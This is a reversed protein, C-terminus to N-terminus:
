GCKGRGRPRVSSYFFLQSRAFRFEERVTGRGRFGAAEGGAIGTSVKLRLDSQDAVLFPQSV